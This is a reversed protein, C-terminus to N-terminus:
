ALAACGYTWSSKGVVAGAFQGVHVAVDCMADQGDPMKLQPAPYQHSCVLLICVALTGVRLLMRTYPLGLKNGPAQAGKCIGTLVHM